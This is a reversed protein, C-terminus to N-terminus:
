RLLRLAAGLTTSDLKELQSVNVTGHGKYLAHLSQLGTERAAQDTQSEDGRNAVQYRGPKSHRSGGYQSAASQNVVYSRPESEQYTEREPEEAAVDFRSHRPPGPQNCAQELKDGIRREKELADTLREITSDQEHVAIEWSEEVERKISTLHDLKSRLILRSEASQTMQDQLVDIQADLVDIDMSADDGDGSFQSAQVFLGMNEFEEVSQQESIHLEALKWNQLRLNKKLEAVEREHVTDIKSYSLKMKELKQQSVQMQKKYKNKFAEQQGNAYTQETQLELLQQKIVDEQGDNVAKQLEYAQHSNALRARSDAKIKPVSAKLSDLTNQADETKAKWADRSKEFTSQLLTMAREAENKMIKKKAVAEECEARKALEAAKLNTLQVALEQKHTDLGAQAQGLVVEKQAIEHDAEARMQTAENHQVSAFTQHQDIVTKTLFSELAQVNEQLSLYQRKKEYFRQREVAARMMDQMNERDQPEYHKRYEVLFSKRVVVGEIVPGLKTAVGKTNRYTTREAAARWLTQVVNGALARKYADRSLAMRVLAQTIVASEAKIEKVKQNLASAFWDRMLVVPPAGHGVRLAGSGPDSGATKQNGPPKDGLGDYIMDVKDQTSADNALAEAGEKALEPNLVRYQDVFAQFGLRIPFGGRRIVLTDLMGTYKLQKLVLANKWVGKALPNSAKLCRVFNSDTMKLKMVLKDLSDAFARAVSGNGGSEKLETFKPNMYDVMQSSILADYSDNSLKDQNKDSWSRVDYTVDAAYHQLKFWGPTQYQKGIGMLTKPVSKTKTDYGYPGMEHFPKKGRRMSINLRGKPDNKVKDKASAKPGLKELGAYFAMDAEKGQKKLKAVNDLTGIISTKNGNKMLKITDDNKDFDIKIEFGLQKKYVAQELDFICEVFLGQLVENCMNINYQDLTNMVQGGDPLLDPDAYFEFGFIDLVGIYPQTTESMKGTKQKLVDTIRQIMWLFLENYVTRAISDRLNLAIVLPRKCPTLKKNIMVTEIHCADKLKQRDCQWLEAITDLAEKSSGTDDVDPEEEDGTFDINGMWLTGATTRWIVDVQEPTFFRSLAYKTKAMNEADKYNRPQPYAPQNDLAKFGAEVNRFIRTYQLDKTATGGNLYNYDSNCKEGENFAGAKDVMHYKQKEEPSFGQQNTGFFFQPEDGKSDKEPDASTTPKCLMRYFIHFNRENMQQASVRSKELMYPTITCGTVSKDGKDFYISFLKGFRSSDPNRPMNSNGFGELIPTASLMLDTIKEEGEEAAVGSAQALYGLIKMTTFTKGAGSEGTIIISQDNQGDVVRGDIKKPKFVEQFCHSALSWPHPSEAGRDTQKQYRHLTNPSWVEQNSYDQLNIAVLTVGCRCYAQIPKMAARVRLNRCLEADNLRRMNVMDEFGYEKGEEFGVEGEPEPFEEDRGCLAAKGNGEGKLCSLAKPTFEGELHSLGEVTKAEYHPPNQLDNKTDTWEYREVTLLKTKPDIATVKSKHINAGDVDEGDVLLWCEQGVELNHPANPM